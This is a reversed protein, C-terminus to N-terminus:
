SEGAGVHALEQLLHVTDVDQRNGMGVPVALDHEHVVLVHVSLAM